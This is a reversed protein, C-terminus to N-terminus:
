ILWIYLKLKVIYVIAGSSLTVFTESFTPRTGYMKFIGRSNGENGNSLTNGPSGKCTMILKQLDFKKAKKIQPKKSLM